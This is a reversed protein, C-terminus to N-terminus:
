GVLRAAFRAVGVPDTLVRYDDIEILRDFSRAM